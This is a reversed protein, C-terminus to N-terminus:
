RLTLQQSREYSILYVCEVSLPALSALHTRLPPWLSLSTSTFDGAPTCRWWPLFRTRRLTRLLGPWFILRPSSYLLVEVSANRCHCNQQDMKCVVKLIGAETVVAVMTRGEITRLWSFFSVCCSCSCADVRFVFLVCSSKKQVYVSSGCLVLLCAMMLACGSTPWGVEKDRQAVSFWGYTRLSQPGSGNVMGM